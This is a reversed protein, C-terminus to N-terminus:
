LPQAIPHLSSSKLLYLSTTQRKSKWLTTHTAEWPLHITNYIFDTHKQIGVQHPPLQININKTMVYYHLSPEFLWTCSLTAPHPRDNTLQQIISLVTKGDQDYDWIKTHTLNANNFFNGLIGMGLVLALGQGLPKSWQQAIRELTLWIVWSWIVLFVLTTRDSPYLADFLWHEAVIGMVMLLLIALALALPSEYAESQVVLVAGAVWFSVFVIQITKLIAFSPPADYLSFVIMSDFAESLTQQGHYLQDNESLELLAEIPIKVIFLLGMGVLLYWWIPQWRALALHRLIGLALLALLWNISAFNSWIALVAWAVAAALHRHRWRDAARDALGDPVVRFFHWSSALVFGISLGYGRALGFFDMLFPNFLFLAMGGFLLTWHQTHKLLAQGALGGYLVFALVNPARLAWEAPGLLQACQQMLWTNLPHHNATLRIRPDEGAFILFSLAEDHVLSLHYARYGVWGLLCLLVSWYFISWRNPPHSPGLQVSSHVSM